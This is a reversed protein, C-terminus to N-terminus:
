KSLRKEVTSVAGTRPWFTVCIEEGEPLNDYIKKSVKFHMGEVRIHYEYYYGSTGGGSWTEAARWKRSVGGVVIIQWGKIDKIHDEILWLGGLGLFVMTIVIMVIAWTALTAWLLTTVGSGFLCLTFLVLGAIRLYMNRGVLSNRMTVRMSGPKAMDAWKAKLLGKAVRTQKAMSARKDGGAMVETFTPEDPPEFMGARERHYFCDVCYRM